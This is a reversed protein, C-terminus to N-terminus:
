ELVEIFVPSFIGYPHLVYEKTYEEGETRFSNSDTWLDKGKKRHLPGLMNRPSGVVEIEILNEGNKVYNTIDVRNRCRWPIHEVLKGNIWIAIHIASYEGMNLFVKNEKEFNINIREKYFICGAYFPYGQLCWDGFRLFKPEKTIERTIPDVAFDGIIFCDEIEMSNKYYCQLIIENEGEKLNSVPIKDFYRDLYWSSPEGLKEGNLFINFNKAGEIVFFSSKPIDKIKFSLKFEVFTGDKPHPNNVWLWRQPIRNIHIPIMGLKERIERQAMWIPMEESWNEKELRYRCTDLVLVNPNDRRFEFVPGLYIRKKLKFKREPKILSPEEPNIVYLKSDAPGFKVRLHQNGNVEMSSVPKIEGTLPDWEEVRGKCGLVIDVEYGQNRDNNVIFFIRKGEYIREMYLFTEAEQAPINQISIRRALVEELTKGLARKGHLIILNQHNIFEKLLNSTKGECYEPLPELSIVKGDNNLFELLLNLTKERITIMPPLIVLKYRGEGVVFEKKEKDIKGYKEIISEDGLDFDWHLGLLTKCLNQFDRGKEDIEETNRGNFECWASEIPHIILIDRVVKGLSLMFSLRAFYDEVIKNYKWWINHYNFSPPYDRKRCGRLTYLTLHQCRLNVGLAYQWDGVWKQGEFTFEWGTCGYLESIVRNKGLQNAISSVQKVTLIEDTKEMLIDIGPVHQYEYHPMISGSTLISKSFENEYLYHGTFYLNHKECWEGIQKSYSELFLESITRWYDYRAKLSKEGKFPIYVAIDFFDYGRKEKFYEPFIDTWPFSLEEGRTWLSSFINPEDTFIGPITKGFEEGVEKYYADYTIEIFAKVSKPNLNDSYSDYNFWDSPKVTERRLVILREPPNVEIYSIERLREEKLIKEGEMLVKYVALEKGKPTFEGSSIIEYILKKERGEDGIKKPVLGGAFGSPWRDEDYLWAKMGLEKSRKVTEKICEMWERSLYETELGVRSHMFFGGMGHEKMDEVQRKLEDISLHDNWSWFPASRFEIDPNIFKEKIEKM